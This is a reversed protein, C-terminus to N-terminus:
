LSKSFLCARNEFGSKEYFEHAAKRHHASDLEVRKCGRQRAAEVLEALLKAGIGRRRHAADVVLEDINATPGGPWLVNKLSVTGFGVVIEGVVACYYVQNDSDLARAYVEQSFNVDLARDPWLQRLLALVQEFDASRSPRIQM